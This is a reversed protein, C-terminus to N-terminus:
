IVGVLSLKPDKFSIRIDFVLLIFYVKPNCVLIPIKTKIKKERKGLHISLLVITHSSM